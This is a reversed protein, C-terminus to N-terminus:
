LGGIYRGTQFKRLLKDVLLKLASRCLRHRLEQYIDIQEIPKSIPFAFIEQVLTLQAFRPIVYGNPLICTNILQNNNCFIFIKGVPHQYALRRGFHQPETASIATQALQM